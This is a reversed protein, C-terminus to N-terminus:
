FPNMKVLYPTFIFCINSNGGINQVELIELSEVEVIRLEVFVAGGAEHLWTSRLTSQCYCCLTSTNQRIPPIRISIQPPKGVGRKGRCHWRKGVQFISIYGVVRFFLDLYSVLLQHVYDRFYPKAIERPTSLHCYPPPPLGKSEWIFNTPRM